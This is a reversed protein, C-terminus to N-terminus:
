LPIIMNQTKATPTETTSDAMPIKKQGSFFYLGGTHCLQNKRRLFYYNVCYAYTIHEVASRPQM